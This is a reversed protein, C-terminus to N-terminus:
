LAQHLCPHFDMQCSQLDRDCVSSRYQCNVGGKSLSSSTWYLRTVPATGPWLLILYMRGDLICHHTQIGITRSQQPQLYCLASVLLPPGQDCIPIVFSCSSLGPHPLHMVSSAASKSLCADVCYDSEPSLCLSNKPSVKLPHM